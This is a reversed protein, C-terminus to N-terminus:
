RKHLVPLEIEIQMDIKFSALRKALDKAGSDCLHNILAAEGKYVRDLDTITTCERMREIARNVRAENTQAKFNPFM